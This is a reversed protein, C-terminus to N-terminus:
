IHLLPKKAGLVVPVAVLNMVLLIMWALGYSTRVDFIWGVLPPGVMGGFTMHAIVMGHISGFAKRGFYERVSAGRLVQVGGFGLGFCILFVVLQWAFNGHWFFFLGVAQLFFSTAIVYKKDWFDGLWGFLLRGFISALPVSTAFLAAFKESCGQHVLYPMVHFTVANLIMFQITFVVTLLWFTRTKLAEKMNLETKFDDNQADTSDEQRVTHTLVGDPLYGYKEPRHRLMISPPLIFIWTALGLILFTLRWGFELILWTIIPLFIGGAGYGAVTFGMAKGVDKKFWNAVATTTVSMGMGSLGLSLVIFGFYFMAISNTRSLLLFGLGGALGSFFVVKRSGFRDAFFGFVPAFVGIEVNRISGALSVALLTWKFEEVIPKVFATIGYFIGGAWLTVITSGVVVWWGYFIKQSKM